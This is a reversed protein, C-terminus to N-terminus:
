ENDTIIIAMTISAMTVLPFIVSDKALSSRGRLPEEDGLWFTKGNEEIEKPFFTEDPPWIKRNLPAAPCPAVMGRRHNNYRRRRWWRAPDRSVNTQINEKEM